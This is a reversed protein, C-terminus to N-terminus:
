VLNGLTGSAVLLAAEKGMRKAAMEQLTNVTSDERFEDDGLEVTKMVELMEDTPLAVADTRLDIFNDTEYL